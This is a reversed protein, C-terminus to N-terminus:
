VAATNFSEVAEALEHESYWRKFEMQKPPLLDDFAQVPIGHMDQWVQKHPLIADYFRGEYIARLSNWRTIAGNSGIARDDAASRHVGKLEETPTCLVALRAETDCRERFPFHHLMATFDPETLRRHGERVMPCHFGLSLGVRYTGNDNCILPHKWHTTACSHAAYRTSRYMGYSQFEGPHFGRINAPTATPYYDLSNAGIMNYHKPLDEIFERVSGGPIAILEDADFVGWWLAPLAEKVTVSEMFENMVRLRVDEQYFDTHFVTGIEAGAAIAVDITDDPSENDVIFVRDFGQALCNKVAAEVIDGEYWTSILAYIPVGKGYRSHRTTYPQAGLQCNRFLTWGAETLWKEFTGHGVYDPVHAPFKAAALASARTRQIPKVTMRGGTAKQLKAARAAVKAAVKAAAEAKRQKNLEAAAKAAIRATIADNQQSLQRARLAQARSMGGIRELM